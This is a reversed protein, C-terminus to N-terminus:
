KKEVGTLRIMLQINQFMALEVEMAELINVMQMCGVMVAPIAEEGAMGTDDEYIPGIGRMM